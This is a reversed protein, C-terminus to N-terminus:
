VFSDDAEEEMARMLQEAELNFAEDGDKHHSNKLSLKSSFDHEFRDDDASSLTNAYQEEEAGMEEEDISEHAYYQQQYTDNSQKSLSYIQKQSAEKAIKDAYTEDEQDAYTEDEDEQEDIFAQHTDDTGTTNVDISYTDDGVGGASSLPNPAIYSMNGPNNTLSPQASPLPKTTPITATKPESSSNSHKDQFVQGKKGFDGPFVPNGAEDDDDKGTPLPSGLSQLWAKGVAGEVLRTAGPYAKLLMRRSDELDDDGNNVANGSSSANRWRNLADQLLPPPLNQTRALVCAEPYKGEAALLEFARIMNGTSVARLFAVNHPEGEDPEEERDDGHASRAEPPILLTCLLHMTRDGLIFAAKAATGYEGRRYALMLLRKSRHPSRDQAVAGLAERWIESEDRDDAGFGSPPNDKTSVPSDTSPPKPSLAELCLEFRLAPDKAFKLALAHLSRQRLFRAM